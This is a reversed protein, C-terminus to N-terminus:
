EVCLKEQEIENNVLNNILLWLDKATEDLKLDRFIANINERIKDNGKKLIEFEKSEM